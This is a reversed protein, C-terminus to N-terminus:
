RSILVIPSHDVHYKDIQRKGKTWLFLIREPVSQMVLSAYESKKYFSQESQINFPSPRFPIALPEIPLLPISLAM